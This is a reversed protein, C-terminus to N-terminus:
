DSRGRQGRRLRKDGFKPRALAGLDGLRCLISRHGGDCKRHQSHLFMCGNSLLRAGARSSCFRPHAIFDAITLRETMTAPCLVLTLRSSGNQFAQPLDRDSPLRSQGIKDARDIGLPTVAIQRRSDPEKHETM